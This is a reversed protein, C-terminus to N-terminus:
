HHERARADLHVLKRRGQNSLVIRWFNGPLDWQCPLWEDTFGQQRIQEIESGDVLGKDYRHETACLPCRAAIIAHGRVQLIRGRARPFNTM